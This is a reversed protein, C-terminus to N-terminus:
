NSILRGVQPHGARHLSEEAADPPQRGGGYLDCRCFFIAQISTLYCVNEYDALAYKPFIHKYGEFKNVAVALGSKCAWRLATGKRRIKRSERGEKEKGDKEETNENGEGKEHGDREEKM